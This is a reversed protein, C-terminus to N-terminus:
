VRVIAAAKLYQAQQEDCRLIMRSPHWLENDVVVCHSMGDHNAVTAWGKFIHRVGQQFGRM